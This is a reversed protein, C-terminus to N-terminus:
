PSAPGDGLLKEQSLTADDDASLGMKGLLEAANRTKEYLRRGADKEPDFRWPKLFFHMAGVRNASTSPAQLLRQHTM